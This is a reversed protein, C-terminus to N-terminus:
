GVHLIMSSLPSLSVRLIAKTQEDTLELASAIEPQEHQDRQQESQPQQSTAPSRSAGGSDSSTREQAHLRAPRVSVSVAYFSPQYLLQLLAVVLLLVCPRPRVMRLQQCV